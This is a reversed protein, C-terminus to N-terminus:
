AAKDQKPPPSPATATIRAANERQAMAIDIGAARFARDIAMNLQHRTTMLADVDDIFVRLEFNLTKEGFGMFVAKAPPNTLVAPVEGAVRMLLRQVKQTDAGYTVGLPVVLRIVSDSLTWNVLRNTIFEKNPVILEKRDGDLITTARMRIRSVVGTVEGVTVTDGIRVPREFLVIIGSVFNAFIEQLGFGLGFSIAAALWQLKPWGIGVIGGGIVIGLFAISYRSVALVAYRVGNDLPLRELIALELLGPLNSAAIFTLLAVGIAELVNTLTITTSHAADIGLEGGIVVSDLFRLAPLVDAWVYFLGAVLALLTLSHLLRHTQVDIKELDIEPPSKNEQEDDADLLEGDAAVVQAGLVSEAVQPAVKLSRSFQSRGAAINKQEERRVIAAIALRRYVATLWRSITAQCVALALILWLTAELRAALRLATDYYGAAAMVALVVPLLMIVCLVPTSLRAAWSGPRLNMLRWLPGQGPQMSRFLFPILVVQCGIFLLRGLSDKFGDNTQAEVIAIVLLLPTGIVTLWSLQRRFDALADAPWRFHAEGLGGKRCVQRAFLLPLLALAAMKLASGLGVPFEGHNVPSSAITWGISWLVTPWLAAILLTAAATQAACCRTAPM